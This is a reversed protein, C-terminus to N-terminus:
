PTYSRPAPVPQTDTPLSPSVAWNATAVGTGADAYHYYCEDPLLYDYLM